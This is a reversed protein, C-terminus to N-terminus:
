VGEALALGMVGVVIIFIFFVRRREIKEKYLVFGAITTFVAGIGTWIAYATGVPMEKMALSLCYPSVVIFLITAATWLPKTFNESKKMSVVWVPEFLGGLIIWFWAFLSFMKVV